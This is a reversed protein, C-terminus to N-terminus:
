GDRDDRLIDSLTPGSTPPTKPLNLDRVSRRAASTARVLDDLTITPDGALRRTGADEAVASLMAACEIRVLQAATVKGGFEAAFTKALAAARRAANTRGDLHSLTLLRVKGSRTLVRDAVNGARSRAMDAAVEM